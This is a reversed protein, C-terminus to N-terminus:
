WLNSPKFVVSNRYEKVMKCALFGFILTDAPWVTEPPEVPSNEGQRQRSRTAAPMAQSTAADSWISGKDDCGTHTWDGLAGREYPHYKPGVQIICSTRM